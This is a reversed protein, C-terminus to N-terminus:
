FHLTKAGNLGKFGSDANKVLNGLPNRLDFRSLASGSSLKFTVVKRDGHIGERVMAARLLTGGSRVEEEFNTRPMSSLLVQCTRRVKLRDKHNYDRFGRHSWSITQKQNM